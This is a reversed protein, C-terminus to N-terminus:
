MTHIEDSPMTWITVNREVPNQQIGVRGLSRRVPSASQKIAAVADAYSPETLSTSSGTSATSAHGTTTMPDDAAAIRRLTPGTPQHTRSVSTAARRGALSETAAEVRESAPSSPTLLFVTCRASTASRSAPTTSM